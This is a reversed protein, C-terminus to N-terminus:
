LGSGPQSFVVTPQLALFVFLCVIKYETSSESQFLGHFQQLVSSLILSHIITNILYNILTDQLWRHATFIKWERKEKETPKFPRIFIIYKKEFFKGNLIKYLLYPRIWLSDLFWQM